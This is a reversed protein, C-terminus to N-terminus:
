CWGKFNEKLFKTPEIHWLINGDYFWNCYYWGKTEMDGSACHLIANCYGGLKKCQYRTLASWILDEVQHKTITNIVLDIPYAMTKLFNIMKNVEQKKKIIDYPQLM